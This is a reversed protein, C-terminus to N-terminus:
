PKYFLLSVWGSRELSRKSTLGASECAGVIEERDSVLLGSLLLYASRSLTNYLEGLYHLIVNRNINALVIDYTKEPIKSTLELKVRTCHNRQLNEYANEISWHDLDIADIERAGLQEALIALIGTGTGFDFVAKNNFDMQEMQHVMMYTTAHHGTGFSMKPTIVIEYTVGPITEHFEARIGCFSGVQVPEFNSEWVQNWNQDEILRLESQYPRIIEAIEAEQFDDGSFYALLFEQTQEFGAAQFDSLSSILLEQDDEIAHIKLEIYSM